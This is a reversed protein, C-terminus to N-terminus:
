CAIWTTTGYPEEVADNEEETTSSNSSGPNTSFRVQPQARLQKAIRRRSEHMSRSFLYNGRRQENTKPQGGPVKGGSYCQRGKRREHQRQQRQQRRQGSQYSDQTGTNAQQAELYSNDGQGHTDNQVSRLDVLSFNREQNIKSPLPPTSSTVQDPYTSLKGWNTVALRIHRGQFLQLMCNQLVIAGSHESVEQLIDIQDDRARLSVTGTEDGVEVDAVRVRSGDAQSKDTVVTVKGVLCCLNYGRRKQSLGRLATPIKDLRLCGFEAAAAAPDEREMNVRLLERELKDHNINYAKTLDSVHIYVPRRLKQQSLQQVQTSTNAM